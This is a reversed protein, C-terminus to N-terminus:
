GLIGVSKPNTNNKYKMELLTSNGLYSFNEPDGAIELKLRVLQNNRHESEM